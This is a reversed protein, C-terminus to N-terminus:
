RTKNILFSANTIKKVTAEADDVMKNGIDYFQQGNVKADGAYTIDTFLLIQSMEIYSWGLVWKLFIPDGFLAIEPVHAKVELILNSSLSTLIEFRKSNPDFSFKITNKSYTALTDALANLVTLSEAWESINISAVFPSSSVGFSLSNRPMLFGINQMDDYNVIYIWKIAEIEDPLYFFKTDQSKNKFMSVLDVYYYTTQLAYKYYRYFWRTANQTAIRRIADDPLIKPLACNKTLDQQILDILEEITLRSDM